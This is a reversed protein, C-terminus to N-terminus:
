NQQRFSEFEESDGLGDRWLEPLYQVAQQEHEEGSIATLSQYAFVAVDQVLSIAIVRLVTRLNSASDFDEAAQMSDTIQRELHLSARDGAEDAAVTGALGGSEIQDGAIECRVGAVDIETVLTDVTQRRM